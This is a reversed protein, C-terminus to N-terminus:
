EKPPSIVSDGGQRKLSLSPSVLAAVDWGGLIVLPTIQEEKFPLILRM